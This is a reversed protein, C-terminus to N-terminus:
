DNSELELRWLTWESMPRAGHERYFSQAATNWNLVAWEMRGWGREAVIEQLRRILAGAIGRGRYQELVFLDELYLGPRGRWTSYNRFFLAFGVPNADYEALLCEFAPHPASMQATLQAATAEVAEPEREFAALSKIFRLITAADLPNAFRITLAAM